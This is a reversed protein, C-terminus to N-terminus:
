YRYSKSEIKDKTDVLESEPFERTERVNSTTLTHRFSPYKELEESGEKKLNLIVTFNHPKLVPGGVSGLGAEGSLPEMEFFSRGRVRALFRVNGSSAEPEVILDDEDVWYVFMRNNLIRFNLSIGDALPQYYGQIIARDGVSFPPHSYEPLEKEEKTSDVAPEPELAENFVKTTSAKLSLVLTLLIILSLLKKSKMDFVICTRLRIDIRSRPM